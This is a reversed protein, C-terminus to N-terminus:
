ACASELSFYFSINNDSTLKGLKKKPTDQLKILFEKRIEKQSYQEEAIRVLDLFLKATIEADPLARHGDTESYGYSEGLESLKYSRRDPLLRRALKMTCLFIQKYEKGTALSVENCWFRSDFAANHAVLTAGQSLAILDQMVKECPPAARVHTNKIGTLAAIEQHIFIDSRMLSSYRDIIQGDQLLVLGVEICRDGNAPSFGTTEFDIVAFRNTLPLNGM